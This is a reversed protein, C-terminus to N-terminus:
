KSNQFVIPTSEKSIYEEIGNDKTVKDLKIYGHERTFMTFNTQTLGHTPMVLAHCHINTDEHEFAYKGESFIKRSLQKIVAKKFQEKSHKSNPNHTFTVLYPNLKPILNPYAEKLYQVTLQHQYESREKTYPILKTPCELDALCHLFDYAYTDCWQKYEMEIYDHARTLIDLTASRTTPTM